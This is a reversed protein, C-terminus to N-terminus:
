QDAVVSFLYITGLIYMYGRVRYSSNEYAKVASRALLAQWGPMQIEWQMKGM